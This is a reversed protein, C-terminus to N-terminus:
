LFVRFDVSILTKLHLFQANTDNEGRFDISISSQCHFDVSFRLFLFDCLDFTEKNVQDTKETDQMEFSM